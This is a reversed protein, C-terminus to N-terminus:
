HYPVQIKMTAKLDQNSKIGPNAEVIDAVTTDYMEAIIELTENKGVTHELTQPFGGVGASPVPAVTGTEDAETEPQADTGAAAAAEPQTTLPAAPVASEPKSGARDSGNKRLEM